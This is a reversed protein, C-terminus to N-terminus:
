VSQEEEAYQEWNLDKLNGLFPIAGFRGNLYGKQLNLDFRVDFESLPYLSTAGNKQKEAFWIEDQRFVDQDLLNSEHTTFIFQGKTNPDKVFKSVLKKLLAPHISQDIEDIIATAQDYIVHFFVPIFDLIRQTGASEENLLFTYLNGHEDGHKAMLRKVVVKGHEKVVIADNAESPIHLFGNNNKLFAKAKEVQEKDDEGFYQDIDITETALEQVGTQLSALFDNAFRQFALSGSFMAVFGYPKSNPFVVMLREMFWVFTRRVEPFGQKAFSMLKIFTQTDTLLEEEYLKVRLRDEDSQYYRENVEIKTQGQQTTRNFILEATKGFNTKYLWEETISGQFVTIGYHYSEQAIVFEVEFSTPLNEYEPSLRFTPVPEQALWNDETVIRHLLRLAKVLNSKGAGNPGYIAGVKLLELEEFHYIHEKMRRPSGTLTNFEVEEAFSLYNSVVFRILM